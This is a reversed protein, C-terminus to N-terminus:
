ISHGIFYFIKCGCWIIYVDSKHIFAEKSRYFYAEGYGNIIKDMMVHCGHICRLMIM